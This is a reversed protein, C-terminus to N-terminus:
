SENCNKFFYGCNDCIVKMDFMTSVEIQDGSLEERRWKKTKYGSNLALKSAATVQKLGMNPNIYALLADPGWIYGTVAALGDDASDYVSKGVVVKEVDFISALLDSTILAKEVYQIRSYVNQNEKLVAFTEWGMAMINPAVGSNSVISSYGELVDKIPLSAATGANYDWSTATLITENNTWSGTTFLLTAAEYEQRLLIKDTLMETSTVDVMITDSNERDRDTVIDSLAHENLAYSATSVEWQHQNSPTGNARLTDPIKQDKNYIYYVDSEKKVPITKLLQDAIFENNRYKVSINSLAKNIHTQGRYAM